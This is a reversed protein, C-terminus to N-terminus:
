PRHDPPAGVAGRYYSDGPGGMTATDPGRANGPFTSCAALLIALAAVGLFKLM